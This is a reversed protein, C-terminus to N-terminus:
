SKMNLYKKFIIIELVTYINPTLCIVVINIKVYVVQEGM